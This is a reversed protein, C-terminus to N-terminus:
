RLEDGHEQLAELYALLHDLDRDPIVSEDFAPMYGIGRRVQLRIAVDPVPKNNIAPGLGAEGQPHCQNCYEYFVRQGRQESRDLELKGYLPEDRRATGCGAVLVAIAIVALKTPHAV